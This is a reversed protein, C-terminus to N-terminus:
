SSENLGTRQVETRSGRRVSTGWCKPIGQVEGPFEGEPCGAPVHSVRQQELGAGIQGQGPSDCLQKLHLPSCSGLQHEWHCSTRGVHRPPDGAEPLKGQLLTGWDPAPRCWPASPFAGGEGVGLAAPGRSPQVWAPLPLPNEKSGKPLASWPEPSEPSSQPLGGSDSNGVVYPLEQIPTNGVGRFPSCCSSPPTKQAAM